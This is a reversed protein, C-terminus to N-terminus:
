KDKIIQLVEKYAMNFRVEILDRKSRSLNSKKLQVLEFEKILNIGNIPRFMGQLFGLHNSYQKRIYKVGLVEVDYYNRNDVIREAEEKPEKM